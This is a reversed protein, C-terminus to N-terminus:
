RAVVDAASRPELQATANFRILIGTVDYTNGVVWFSSPIGIAANAIRVVFQTGAADRVTVNYATGTGVSVVTVTPAQVLEGQFQLANIQAGTVVRPAPVTGAALRTVVPQIIELEQNFAVVKGTVRVRDGLQPKVSATDVGFVQIGATADQIYISRANFTGLGAVVTGEVTVTASDTPIKTRAEAITIPPVVATVDAANRPELQATANFRILIGTVDYTGGVTWFTRPIGIGANAIRVIFPTGGADKVFVNYAAATGGQVSDVKVSSAKVLEGQFQLANIQTGTVSRPAPVTGSSLKTIVPQIIELEQNFAIVKGVVRVLDGLQPKITATDVGFVQIGGTADQIYISRANFTGLGAVVTGEVAVLASDTPNKTRAESIPIVLSGTFRSNVTAPTNAAVTVTATNGGVIQITPFPTYLVTYSGPRLATFTYKGNADTTATGVPTKTTDTGSFLRVTIGSAPTDGTDFTGNGNNDRFLTGNISGPNFVYRFEATQNGGSVPAVVQLPSATALVAGAPPTGAFTASYSGPNVTNFTAVGDSGTTASLTDTTTGALTLTIRAGSIAVDGTDFKGSGNADVYARVAVTSPQGLPATSDKQCAAVACALLPLLFRAVPRKM